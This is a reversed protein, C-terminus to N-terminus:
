GDTNGGEAAPRLGTFLENPNLPGDSGIPLGLQSLDLVIKFPGYVSGDDLIQAPRGLSEFYIAQGEIFSGFAGANRELFAGVIDGTALTQAIRREEVQLYSTLTAAFSTLVDLNSDIDATREHILAVAAPLNRNMRDFEAAVPTMQDAFSTLLRIDRLSQDATREAFAAVESTLELSRRIRDAEGQQQGLVDIITAIEHPDIAALFPEMAAIAEQLETPRTDAEVVDGAALLPPQGFREQPFDLEVQKEGLLTKATVAVSLGKRPIDNGPDIRLTAIAVRDEYRLASVQGVRVGRVKVDSGTNLGSGANGLVATVEFSGAPPSFAHDLGLWSVAVLLVAAATGAIRRVIAQEV